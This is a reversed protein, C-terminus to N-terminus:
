DLYWAAFGDGWRRHGLQDMVLWVLGTLVLISLGTLVLRRHILWLAALFSFLM